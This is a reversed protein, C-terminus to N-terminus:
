FLYSLKVNIVPLLYLFGSFAQEKYIYPETRQYVLTGNSRNEQALVTYSRKTKCLELLLDSGIFVHRSLKFNLGIGGGFGLQKLERDMYYTSTVDTDYPGQEPWYDKKNAFRAEKYSASLNASMRFRSRNIFNYKLQYNFRFGKDYRLFVPSFCKLYAQFEHSLRKNYVQEFGLSLDGVLLNSPITHIYFQHKKLSDEHAAAQLSLFLAIIFFKM